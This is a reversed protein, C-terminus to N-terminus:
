ISAFSGEEWGSFDGMLARNEGIFSRPRASALRMM